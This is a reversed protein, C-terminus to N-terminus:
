DTLRAGTLSRPLPAPLNINTADTYATANGTIIVKDAILPMFPSAQGFTGSGNMRVTQTPIYIAGTLVTGSNGNLKSASGVNSNRDQVLLLGRYDGATMASLALNSGATIDFGANTGMLYFTVGNGTITGQSNLTLSGDKIVYLGPNLTVDGKLTLGGCYVGPQLTKTQGPQVAVNTTSQKCSTDSPPGLTAYPDDLPDCNNEPEPSLAYYSSVTGVACYGDAKMSSSGSVSIAGTASSNAHLVCNKGVFQASGSLDIAASATKNLAMVCPPPGEKTRVTHAYSAVAISPIKLVRLFSTAVSSSARVTAEKNTATVSVNSTVGAPQNARFVATGNTQRQTSSSAKMTLAAIAAADAAAQLKGRTQTARTYDVAAGTLGLVPVLSVAFVVAITGRKDRVFSKFLRM